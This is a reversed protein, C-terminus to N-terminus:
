YHRHSRKDGLGITVGGFILGNNTLNIGHSNRYNSPRSRNARTNTRTNDFSNTESYPPPSRDYDEEDDWNFCCGVLGLLLGVFKPM